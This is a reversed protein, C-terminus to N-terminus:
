RLPLQKNQDIKEPSAPSSSCDDGQCPPVPDVYIPVKMLGGNKEIYDAISPFDAACDRKLNEKLMFPNKVSDAAIAAYAGALTNVGKLAEETGKNESVKFNELRKKFLDLIKQNRNVAKAGKKANCLGTESNMEVFGKETYVTVYKGSSSFTPIEVVNYSGRPGTRIFKYQTTGDSLESLADVCRRSTEFELAALSDFSFCFAFFLAIRRNM